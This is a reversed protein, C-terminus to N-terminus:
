QRSTTRTFVVKGDFITADVKADLFRDPPTSFIDASMIVIDALM